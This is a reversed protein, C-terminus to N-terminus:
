LSSRKAKRELNMRLNGYMYGGLFYYNTIYNILNLIDFKYNKHSLTLKIAHKHKM